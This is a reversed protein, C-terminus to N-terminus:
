TDRPPAKRRPLADLALVRPVVAVQGSVGLKKYVRKLLLRVYGPRFGTLAAIEPVTRGEALMAAVRGESANLEFAEAVRQADIQPRQAPDVVLALAAVRRAGFDARPDGVPTVHLGLPTGDGRRRLTMSGGAPAEGWRGPLARGLLERLREREGPETAHLTGGSDSLGDGRRLIDLGPANAAAVRGGRDLYLVGIRSNDLLGALRAKGAGAAALAQRVVVVHRVHPMLEEIVALQESGWGGDAPDGIGWVARLGQPADFRVYLGNRAGMRRLAENYVPAARREDETYLDPIPIPQNGSRAMLRRVGADQAYYADFYEGALEPLPEGGRAFRALYIRGDEFSGDGAVLANGAAGVAEEIHAGVVHWETQDLAALHLAELARDFADQSSM